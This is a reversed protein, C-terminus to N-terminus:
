WQGHHENWTHQHAEEHYNGLPRRICGTLFCAAGMFMTLSLTFGKILSPYSFPKGSLIKGNDMASM